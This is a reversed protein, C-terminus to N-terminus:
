ATWAHLPRLAGRTRYTWGSIRLFAGLLKLHKQYTAGVAHIHYELETVLFERDEGEECDEEVIKGSDSSCTGKRWTFGWNLSNFGGSIPVNANTDSLVDAHQHEKENSSERKAAIFIDNADSRQTSLDLPSDSVRDGEEKVSRAKGSRIKTCENLAPLLQPPFVLRAWVTSVCNEIQKGINKRNGVVIPLQTEFFSSSLKV